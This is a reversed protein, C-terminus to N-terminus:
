ANKHLQSALHVSSDDKPPQSVPTPFCADNPIDPPFSSFMPAHNVLFQDLGANGYKYQYEVIVDERFPQPVLEILNCMELTDPFKIFKERLIDVMTYVNLPCREFQYPMIFEGFDEIPNCRQRYPTEEVCNCQRGNKHYNEGPKVAIRGFFAKVFSERDADDVLDQIELLKAHMSRNSWTYNKDLLEGLEIAKVSVRLDSVEDYSPTNESLVTIDMENIHALNSFQKQAVTLGRKKLHVTGGYRCTAARKNARIRAFLRAAVHLLILDACFTCENIHIKRLFRGLHTLVNVVIRYNTNL